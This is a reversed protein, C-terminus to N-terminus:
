AIPQGKGLGSQEPVDREFNGEDRVRWCERCCLMLPALSM